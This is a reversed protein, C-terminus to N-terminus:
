EDDSKRDCRFVGQRSHYFDCERDLAAKLRQRARHLRIKTAGPTSGAIEATQELSFDQLDHLLLTSRYADPLSDIVERVCDSMEDAIVKDGIEQAPDIIEGAEDLDVLRVKNVPRRLYDAAVRSAITFLWTKISSHGAFGELGRTMRMWTEQLLDEAVTPNGVYRRLYGLLPQQFERIVAEPDLSHEATQM